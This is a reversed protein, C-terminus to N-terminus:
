DMRKENGQIQDKEGRKLCASDRVVLNPEIYFNDYPATPSKIKQLLLSVAMEAMTATRYQVTTLPPYLSTAVSLDDFGVIGVDSPIRKGIASCVRYLRAALLDHFCFIGVPEHIAKLREELAAVGDRSSNGLHFVDDHKLQFGNQKLGISFAIFREDEDPQLIKTGIYMFHRYGEDVLYQAVKGSISFSNVQVSSIKSNDLSHGVMVSPIKCSEYVKLNEAPTHVCNIIGAVKFRAMSSVVVQEEAPSYSAYMIIVRYGAKAATKVISESISSYFENNIQPLILGIVNDQMRRDRLHQEHSLYYRKGRLEIYNASCLGSLVHHATVLSIRRQEALARTTLFADGPKGYKGCLIEEQLVAQEKAALPLNDILNFDIIAM